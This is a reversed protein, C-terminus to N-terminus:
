RGAEKQTEGSVAAQQRDNQAKEQFTRIYRLCEQEPLPRGYYYGQLYDVQMEKMKLSWEKKARQVYGSM